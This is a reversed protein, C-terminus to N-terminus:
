SYNFHLHTKWTFASQNKKDIMQIVHDPIMRGYTSIFKDEDVEEIGVHYYVHGIFSKFEKDTWKEGYNRDIMLWISRGEGTAFYDCVLFRYVPTNNM